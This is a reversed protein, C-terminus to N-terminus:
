LRKLKVPVRLMVDSAGSEKRDDVCIYYKSQTKITFSKDLPVTVDNFQVLPVIGEYVWKKQVTDWKPPIQRLGLSDNEDVFLVNVNVNSVGPSAASLRFKEDPYLYVKGLEKQVDLCDFDGYHINITTDIDATKAPTATGASGPGPTDAGTGAAPTAASPSAPAQPSTCGAALALVVLLISIFWVNRYFRMNRFIFAPIM